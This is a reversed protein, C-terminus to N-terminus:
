DPRRSQSAISVVLDLVLSGYDANAHTADTAYFQPALFGQEDFCGQPAAAFGIDLSAAWAEMRQCELVWLKRRLPPRNLGNAAIDQGRYPKNWKALLHGLMFANDEKPPPCALVYVRGKAAARLKPVLTETQLHHDFAGAVVRHPILQAGSVPVDDPRLMFDFEIEPRVLGIINHYTGPLSLFLCTAEDLTGVLAVADHASLAEADGQKDGSQLRYVCVHDWAGIASAAASMCVTHSQGIVVAKTM